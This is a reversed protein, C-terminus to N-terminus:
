KGLNRAMDGLDGWSPETNKLKELKKINNELETMRKALDNIILIYSTNHFRKDMKDM